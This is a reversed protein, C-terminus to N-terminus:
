DMEASITVISEKTGPPEASPVKVALDIEAEDRADDFNLHCIAHKPTFDLYNWSVMTCGSDYTAPELYEDVKYQYYETNMPVTSFMPTANISVNIFCNGNNRILFPGNADGPNNLSTNKAEGLQMTGFDTTSYVLEIDVYPQITFNWADSTSSDLESDYAEVKWEYPAIDLYDSPTFSENSLSSFQLSSAGTCYDPYPCAKREIYLNYNVLDGDPDNAPNWRFEPKRNIVSNNNNTPEILVPKEPPSNQITIEISNKTDSDTIGDSVTISCKWREDKATENFHIVDPQHGALGALYNSYIQEETLAYDYIQVEDIMGNLYNVEGRGISLPYLSDRINYLPTDLSNVLYGDIYLRMYDGDYAFVYYHFLNDAWNFSYSISSATGANDKIYGSITGGNDTFYLMYDYDGNTPGKTIVGIANGPSSSKIWASVTLASTPSISSSDQVTVYDNGDFQYCGGSICDSGSKYIPASSASGGGLTGNNQYPSYDRIAGPETTSINNDFPMNLVALSSDNKFWNYIYTMNDGDADYPNNPSCALSNQTYTKYTMNYMGEIEEAPLVRNYIALEDISGNFFSDGNTSAGIYVQSSATNLTGGLAKSAVYDGDVYVSINLNGDYTGVIHVWENLSHGIPFILDDDSTFLQMNGSSDMDFGFSQRATNSGYHILYNGDGWEQPKAWFSVTRPASGIPINTSGAVIYDGNGDFDYAGGVRGERTNSADGYATGHNANGSSDKADNDLTWYGVLSSENKRHSGIYPTDQTAVLDWFGNICYYGNWSEGSDICIGDSNVCDSDSDCCASYYTGSLSTNRFNEGPDDGCCAVESGTVYEGFGSSEGGASWDFATCDNDGKTCYEAAEDRDRALCGGDCYIDSTENVVCYYPATDDCAEDAACDYQCLSNQDSCRPAGAGCVTCKFCKNDDTTLGYLPEVAGNEADCFSDQQACESNNQCGACGDPIGYQWYAPSGDGDCYYGSDSAEECHAVETEIGLIHQNNCDYLQGNYCLIAGSSNGSNLVSANYCCSAGTAETQEFFENADDGCCHSNTGVGSSLWDHSFCSCSGSSVDGDLTKVGQHCYWDGGACFVDAIADDGCCRLEDSGEAYFMEIDVICNCTQENDDGNNFYYCTSNIWGNSGDCANGTKEDSSVNMVIASYECKTNENGDYYTDYPTFCWNDDTDGIADNDCYGSLCAEDESSPTGEYTVGICIQSDSLKGQCFQNINCFYDEPCDINQECYLASYPEFFGINAEINIGTANAGPQYATSLSRSGDFQEAGAIGTTTRRIDYNASSAQFANIQSSLLVLLIIFVGIVLLNEKSLQM